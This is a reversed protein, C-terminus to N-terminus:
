GNKNYDEIMLDVADKKSEHFSCIHISDHNFSNTELTM